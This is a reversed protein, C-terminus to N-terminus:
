GSRNASRRLPGRGGFRDRLQGRLWRFAAAPSRTVRKGDILTVDGMPSFHHLGDPYPGAPDPPIRAVPTEEFRTPTLLDVRNLVIAAGYATSCDQAPRYLRGEHLFPRGGPRSSRCDCKVPNAAHPSWPGRLDPAHFAWLKTQDEDDNDATLLWWRGAHQFLTSDVGAFDELLVRDVVWREPYPEARLLVVRRAQFSEPVCYVGGAHEILYPYSLHGPIPIELRRASIAGAATEEILALWGERHTHDYGEVFLHTGSESRRGFPDAYYGGPLIEPLWRVPAPRPDALFAAAPKAVYGVNWADEGLLRWGRRVLSRATSIPDLLAELRGPAGAEGAPLVIEAGRPAVEGTERLELAAQLPWPLAAATLVREATRPRLRVGQLVGERVISARAARPDALRVMRASMTPAGRRFERHGPRGGEAPDGFLFTWIGHPPARDLRRAGALDFALLADLAPADATVVEAARHLREVAATAWGADASGAPVVGLRPRTL